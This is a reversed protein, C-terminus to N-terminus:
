HGGYVKWYQKIHINNLLDAADGDGFFLDDASTAESLPTPEFPNSALDGLGVAEELGALLDEQQPLPTSRLLSESEVSNVVAAAAADLVARLTCGTLDHGDSSVVPVLKPPPLVSLVSWRPTFPPLDDTEGREEMRKQQKYQKSSKYESSLSDRFGQAVSIRAAADEVAFWRRSSAERKVFGTGGGRKVQQFIRRIISSKTAKTQSNYYAPLHARIMARFELNHTEVRRGRGILVDNAHPQYDDALYRRAKQNKKTTTTSPATM